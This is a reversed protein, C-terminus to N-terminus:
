NAHHRGQRVDPQSRGPSPEDDDTPQQALGTAAPGSTPSAATANALAASEEEVQTREEREGAAGQEQSHNTDM